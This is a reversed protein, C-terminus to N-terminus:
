DSVSNSHSSPTNPNIASPINPPVNSSHRTKRLGECETNTIISNSLAHTKNFDITVYEFAKRQPSEPLLLSSVSHMTTSASMSPSIAGSTAVTSIPNKVPSSSSSLASQQTETAAGCPNTATSQSHSQDLDLVIYNVGASPTMPESNNENIITPSNIISDTKTLIETRSLRRIQNRLLMPRVENPELNEYCHMADILYNNNNINNRYLQTQKYDNLAVKPTSATSSIEGPTINVYTPIADAAIDSSQTPSIPLSHSLNENSLNANTIVNSQITAASVTTSSSLQHTGATPAYEQPPIDLSLKKVCMERAMTDTNNGSNRHLLFEQYVNSVGNNNLGTTPLPNLTTVELINNLSNPSGPSLPEMTLTATGDNMSNFRALRNVHAAIIPELYNSDSADYGRTLEDNTGNRLTNSNSSRSNPLIYSGIMNNTTSNPNSLTSMPSTADLRPITMSNSTSLHLPDDGGGGMSSMQIYSQLTQFLSEARRCKFAYIGEGLIFCYLKILTIRKGTRIFKQESLPYFNMNFTHMGTACRRGVEFSFVETDYGYRRLCKLPWRTPQLNKRYLTLENRTIGLQGSWLAVGNDDINTVRFINSSADSLEMRSNSRSASSM